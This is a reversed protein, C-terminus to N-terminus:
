GQLKLIHGEGTSMDPVNGPCKLSLSLIDTGMKLYSFQWLPNWVNTFLHLYWHAKKYTLKSKPAKTPYPVNWFWRYNQGNYSQIHTSSNPMAVRQTPIDWVNKLDKWFALLMLLLLSNYTGTYDIAIVLSSLWVIITLPWLQIFSEVLERWSLLLNHLKREKKDLM